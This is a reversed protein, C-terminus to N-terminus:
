CMSSSRQPAPRASLGHERLVEAARGVRPDLEYARRYAALAEERRGAGILAEGLSDWGNAYDPHIQVHLCFVAIAQTSEGQRLLAYGLRNIESTAPAYRNVPDASWERAEAEARATDGAALADLLREALPVREEYALIAEVAPDRNAVYDEFRPEFTLAPPLYPRRDYPGGPQWFTPSASVLIGSNDLRFFSHDGYFQPSSGTPEGVFIAETWEDLQHALLQAASFTRRGIIVFLGGRRDIKERRVLGKVVRLNLNGEGGVNNRIDLIVREVSNEDVFRYAAEFFEHVGPGEPADNVQNYQIYLTRHDPLYERWYASDPHKLYLPSAKSSTDRAEVWAETLTARLGPEHRVVVPEPLAEVRIGLTRGEREITLEAAMPNASLGTAHLIETRVLFLPAMTRIWIDNDRSVLPAIRELADETSVGGIAVVRGGIADGLAADGAEVFLGEAYLELRLPVSHFGATPDFIIPVSTHGDGIMAVIRMMEVIIEHRALRPIRQELAAVSARFAEPTVTHFAEAHRAVLEHALQELDARWAAAEAVSVPTIGSAASPSPPPPGHAEQGAAGRAVALFGILALWITSKPM